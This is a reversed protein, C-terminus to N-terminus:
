EGMSTIINMRGLIARFIPLFSTVATPQAAAAPAFRSSNKRRPMAGSFSMHTNRSSQKTEPQPRVVNTICSQAM